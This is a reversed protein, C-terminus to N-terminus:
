FHLYIAKKLWFDSLFYVIEFDFRRVSARFSGNLMRSRNGSQKPFPPVCEKRKQQCLDALYIGGESLRRFDQCGDSRFAFISQFEDIPIAM